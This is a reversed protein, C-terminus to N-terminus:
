QSTVTVKVTISGSYVGAEANAPATVQGGVFVFATQVGGTSNFYQGVCGVPSTAADSASVGIACSLNVSLKPGLPRKTLEDGPQVTVDLRLSGNSFDVQISGAHPVTASFSPPVNASPQGAALFGFDAASPNSVTVTTGVAARMPIKGTAGFTQATQAFAPSASVILAAWLLGSSRFSM